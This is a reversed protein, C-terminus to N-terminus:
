AAVLYSELASRASHIALPKAYGMRFLMLPVWGPALERWGDALASQLSPSICESTAGKLGYLAAAPLPQLVRGQKTATLWVRQFTRGARFVSQDEAEKVGIMGLNPALWVPLGSARWGLMHHTGFFNLVRMLPWHRMLAFFPRLPLEVGLAGPSLGEECAHSWGQDFRIASFLEAHLEANRFRETEAKRMLGVAKKRLRPEDMWVLHNLPDDALQASFEAKDPESLPPGRFLVRRNTHRLPIMSCLPDEARGDQTFRVELLCDAPAHGPFLTTAATFGFRTAAIALNEAVAGISLLLLVRKYGGKAALAQETHRVRLVNETVVFRIRHQNDASPALVASELIFRLRVPDPFRSDSPSM